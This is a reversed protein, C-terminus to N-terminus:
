EAFYSELLALRRVLLRLAGTSPRAAGVRPAQSRGAASHMALVAGGVAARSEARCAAQLAFVFCSGEAVDAVVAAEAAEAAEVAGVSGTM